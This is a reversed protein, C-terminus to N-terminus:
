KKVESGSTMRKECSVDSVNGCCKMGLRRCPVRCMPVGYIGRPSSSGCPNESDGVTSSRLTFSTVDSSSTSQTPLWPHSSVSSGSSVIHFQPILFFFIILSHFCYLFVILSDIVKMANRMSKLHPSVPCIPANALEGTTTSLRNPGALDLHHSLYWNSGAM